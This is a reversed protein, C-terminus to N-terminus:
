FVVPISVRLIVLYVVSSRRCLALRLLSEWAFSSSKVLGTVINSLARSAAAVLLGFVDVICILSLLSTEGTGVCGSSKFSGAISVLALLNLVKSLLLM